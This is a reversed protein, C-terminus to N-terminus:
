FIFRAAIQVQRPSYVYNSNSNNITGFNTNYTLQNDVKSDFSYGTTNVGTVNQRNLMNFGEGFLQLHYKENFTFQKEARLDFVATMPYNYTNRGIEPIFAPYGGAGNLGTEAAYCNTCNAYNSGVASSGITLSYPLGNQIQVLPSLSWGNALYGQWGTLHSEFDYVAYGVFRSRVDFNSDGRGITPNPDTPDYQDNSDAFTSQNQNNDIAHSWTYNLDFQLNSSARHKLQAVMGQYSSNINSRVATITQYKRNAFGNYVPTNIVRGDLPGGVVHFSAQVVGDTDASSYPTTDLNTNVFNPLQRGLAGLYNLTFATNWGLSQEISLDFQHIQPNQFNPDLYYASGGASGTPATAVINPFSPANKTSPRYQVTTQATPMGTTSLVEYIASNNLRGYFIGYGGRLITKGKGYVDWAFGLRPMINNGDANLHATQPIDPNALGTIPGPLSEYEYRVGLTLTLTPRIKWEDTAFIGYDGTALDFGNPGFGQYFSSYCPFNGAGSGTSSCTGTSGAPKFYDSLYNLLSTYSYSGVGEYLNNVQDYNHDYDGGFKFTHNGRVWSLTDAIQWKREDPQAPRPLAYYTGFSFGNTGDVSISPPYGLKSIFPSEYPTTPTQPFDANLERGYQYRLQNDMTPTILTDLRALGWDVKVFDNGFSKIGYNVTSQTQLGAPSDWRLRNFQFSAHNRGNIQWDLKPFNIVQDGTRPTEGLISLLDNVGAAYDAQAEAPSVHLRSALLTLNAASPAQFFTNPNKPVGFGPFNRRYQDYAYFWFLRDKILPGGVGFGWQKRWDKPKFYESTYTPFGSANSGTQVPLKTFANSAGWDNDRDYFYLEGHLANSGSKTVSNVVGGAAHGYEASYNSTNVQFERVSAQSSSYGERTRGREESYFAQNNDAGDVQVVNLLPSIARFSLLGFGNLDSTVSPTLLTLDSWRRGNIPLGEISRQDLTTSFDPSTSNILPTAEETVQVTQTSSGTNLKPLLTTVSGVTVVVQTAEYNAFGSASVTVIYTGPALLQSHFNGSADAAVSSEANTGTNRIVIQASPVVAGAADYVTGAIAGDTTSQAHIVAPTFAIVAVALLPLVRRFGIAFM